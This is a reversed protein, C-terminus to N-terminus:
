EETSSKLSDDAQDTATPNSTYPRKLSLPRQSSMQIATQQSLTM